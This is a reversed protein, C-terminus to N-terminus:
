TNNISEAKNVFLEGVDLFVYSGVFNRTVRLYETHVWAHVRM